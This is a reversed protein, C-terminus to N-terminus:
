LKRVVLGSLLKPYFYTSKHPMKEGNLSVDRVQEIRTPRMVIGLSYTGKMALESIAERVDKTYTVSHKHANGNGNGNSETLGVIGKLILEHLVAVDLGRWAASHKGAIKAMAGEVGAKATLVKKGGGALLLGFRVPGSAAESLAILDADGADTVEFLESIKSLVKKEDYSAPAHVLRHTPLIHLGPDNFPVCMMLVYDYPRPNKNGPNSDNAKREERYNCATEYRHHGDAIFVKQPECAKSLASCVKPDDVVWMRNVIGSPERVEVTPKGRAAEALLKVVEGQEDPMLGFVPSLNARCARTLMLRDTKHSAFTEEHPYVQGMGFPELKLAGLVGRRVHKQRKGEAGTVIQFEQEYVYFAPHADQVLVEEDLWQQLTKASRTYRNDSPADGDYQRGLILRVVNHPSRRYLQDQEDISIVDYPPAIVDDIKGTFKAPNYRLAQFPIVTAM